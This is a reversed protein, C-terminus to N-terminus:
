RVIVKQGNVVYIGSKTPTTDLRLGDVTYWVSSTGSVTIDKIDETGTEVNISFDKTINLGNWMDDVVIIQGNITDATYNYMNLLEGNLRWELTMPNQSKILSENAQTFAMWQGNIKVEAGPIQYIVGKYYGKELPITEDTNLNAPLDTPMLYKLFFGAPNMLILPQSEAQGDVIDDTDGDGNLDFRIYDRLDTSNRIMELLEDVDPVDAKLQFLIDAIAVNFYNPYSTSYKGEEACIDNFAWSLYPFARGAFLVDNHFWVPFKSSQNTTNTQNIDWNKNTWVTIVLHRDTNSDNIWNANSAWSYIWHEDGNIDEHYIKNTLVWNNKRINTWAAFLLFNKSKCLNKMSETDRAQYQEKNVDASSSNWFIYINNPNNDVVEKISNVRDGQPNAVAFNTHDVLTNLIHWEDHAHVSPNNFTEWWIVEYNDYWQPNELTMGTHLRNMLQQYEEASHNGAGYKWMMERIRTAEAIRLHKIHEYCQKDWTEVQGIIPLIDAPNINTIEVPQYEQAVSSVAPIVVAM